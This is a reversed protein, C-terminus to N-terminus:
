LNVICLWCFIHKTLEIMMSERRSVVPIEPACGEGSVKELELQHSFLETTYAIYGVYSVDHTRNEAVVYITRKSSNSAPSM